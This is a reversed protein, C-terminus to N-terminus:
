YAGPFLLTWSGRIFDPNWKESSSTVFFSPSSYRLTMHCTPAQTLNLARPEQSVGLETIKKMEVISGRSRGSEIIHEFEAKAPVLRGGDRWGEGREKKGKKSGEVKLYKDTSLTSLIDGLYKDSWPVKYSCMGHDNEM